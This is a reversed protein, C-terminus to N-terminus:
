DNLKIIDGVFIKGTTLIECRIGAKTILERVLNKQNLKKQLYKCPKCLDHAKVKINGIFFEKNVLNNLKVNETVLNRRFDLQSINSNTMKNFFLINESEILTLQNMKDNNDKFKRDNILGKGEVAIISTLSLMKGGKNKSIGIKIIKSM